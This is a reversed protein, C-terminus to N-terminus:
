RTASSLKRRYDAGEPKVWEDLWALVTHYWLISDGPKLVWHNEEEFVLLKSPVHMAQLVQFM